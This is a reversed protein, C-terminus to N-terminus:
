WRTCQNMLKREWFKVHNNAFHYKLKVLVIRASPCRIRFVRYMCFNSTELSHQNWLSSFATIYLNTCILLYTLIKYINDHIHLQTYAILYNICIFTTLYLLCFINRGEISLTKGIRPEDWICFYLDFYFISQV